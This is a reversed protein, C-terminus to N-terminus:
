RKKPSEKVRHADPGHNVRATLMEADRLLERCIQQLRQSAQMLRETKETLLKAASCMQHSRESIERAETRSFYKGQAISTATADLTVPSRRM